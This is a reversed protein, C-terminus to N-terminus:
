AAVERYRDMMSSVMHEVSLETRARHLGCASLKARLERDELLEVIAAALAERDGSTVLRGCKGLLEGLGGVDYGAVPTGVSMSELAALPFGETDHGPLPVSPIVLVDSGAMLELADDRHGLVVVADALHNAAVTEDLAARYSAFRESPVGGVFAVKTGPADRRLRPAIAVLELHGKGPILHGVLAVVRTDPGTGLETRLRARASAADITPAAIGTHVVHFRGHGGDFTRLLAESVGIVSHFRRALLRARPGDMAFDHKIWLARVRQGLTAGAVLIAAKIGNAHVIDPKRRAIVRRLRWSSKALSWPGGTTDIVDVAVGLDNLRAVLPGSGMCVVSNIWDAPLNRLLRELYVESGGLRGYSSVFMM